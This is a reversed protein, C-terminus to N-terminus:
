FDFGVERCFYYLSKVVQAMDGAGL